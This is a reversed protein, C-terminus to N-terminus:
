HDNEDLKQRIVRYVEDKLLDADEVIMGATEIPKHV